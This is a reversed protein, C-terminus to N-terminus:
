TIVVDDSVVGNMQKRVNRSLDAEADQCNQFANDAEQHISPYDKEM